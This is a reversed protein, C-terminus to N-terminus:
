VAVLGNGPVVRKREDCAMQIRQWVRVLGNKVGRAPGAVLGRKQVLQEHALVAGVIERIARVHAVLGAATAHARLNAHALAGDRQVVKLAGVRNENKALVGAGVVGAHQGLQAVGVLAASADHAEVGQALAPQLAKGVRLVLHLHGGQARRGDARVVELQAHTAIKRSDFPHHFMHQLLFVLAAPHQVVGENGFVGRAKLCQGGVQPGLRPRQQLLLRAQGLRLDTRRAIDVDAGLVHDGAPAHADRLVLVGHGGNLGDHAPQHHAAIHAALAGPRARHAAVAIHLAVAGHTDPFLRGSGQQVLQTIHEAKLWRALRTHVGHLGDALHQCPLALHKKRQAAIKGGGRWVGVFGPFGQLAAIERHMDGGLEVAAVQHMPTLCQDQRAQASGFDVHLGAARLTHRHLVRHAHHMQGHADVRGRGLVQQRFRGDHGPQRRGRQTPATVRGPQPQHLVVAADAVQDLLHKHVELIEVGTHGRWPAKPQAVRGALTHPSRRRALGAEVRVWHGAIRRRVQRALPHAVRHHESQEGGARVILVVGGNVAHVVAVPTDIALATHDEDVGLVNALQAHLVAVPHVDLGQPAIPM